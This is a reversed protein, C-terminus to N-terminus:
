PIRPAAGALRIGWGRAQLAAVLSPEAGSAVSLEVLGSADRPSHEIKVDEVNVGIAGVDALLRALEGPQDGILVAVSDYRTAVAGHKGPIRRHGANGRHLLDALRATGAARGAGDTTSLDRLARVTETLDAALDNLVAAVAGANADLIDMWMASSSAATRVVDRLGQGALRVTSSEAGELRAAMLSAVLQPTHSVLAVARDHEAADMLVPVAGCLAVLELALNLTETGTSATPTLVWPRGQFLAAQAALPGSLERGAMPHSGICSSLDCGRAEADRLPGRKVSAVDMCHRALGEQQVEALVQGVLAPPVAVVALDAPQAPPALLGAGLASATRGSDDDADRLHVQVGHGALCLAVSTGILGTGVVVASRM